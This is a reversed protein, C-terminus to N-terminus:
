AMSNEMRRVTIHIHCMYCHTAMEAMLAPPMAGMIAAPDGGEEVVKMMAEVAEPDKSLQEGIDMLHKAAEPDKAMAEAIDGPFTESHPLSHDLGLAQVMQMAEPAVGDIQAVPPIGEEAAAGAATAATAAGIAAAATDAASSM